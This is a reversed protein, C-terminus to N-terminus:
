AFVGLDFRLASSIAFGPTVRIADTHFRIIAFESNPFRFEVAYNAAMSEGLFNPANIGPVQADSDSRQLVFMSIEKSAIAARIASIDAFRVLGDTRLEMEAATNEALESTFLRRWKMGALVAVAPLICAAM